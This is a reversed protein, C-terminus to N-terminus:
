KEPPWKFVTKINNEKKYKIIKICETIPIAICHNIKEQDKLYRVPINKLIQDMEYLPGHICIMVKGKSSKEKKVIQRNTNISCDNIDIEFFKVKKNSSILNIKRHCCDINIEELVERQAADIAEENCDIKGTCGIQTDGDTYGICVLYDDKPLKNICDLSGPMLYPSILISRVLAPNKGDNYYKFFYTMFCVNHYDINNHYHKIM